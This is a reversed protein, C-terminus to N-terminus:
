NRRFRPATQISVLFVSTNPDSYSPIMNIHLYTNLIPTARRNSPIQVNGVVGCSGFFNEQVVIPSNTPSQTEITPNMTPGPGPVLTPTAQRSCFSASGSEGTDCDESIASSTTSIFDTSQFRVQVSYANLAGGGLPTTIRATTGSSVKYLDFQSRSGINSKCGQATEWAKKPHTQCSYDWQTPCCTLVTEEVTGTRYISQCPATYGTPCRAPSYYQETNGVYSGLYCSTQEKPGQLLYWADPDDTNVSTHIFFIQSLDSTCDSPLTFDTPLPGLNDM